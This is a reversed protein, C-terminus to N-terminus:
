VNFFIFKIISFIVNKLVGGREGEWKTYSNVISFAIFFKMILTEELEIDWEAVDSKPLFM